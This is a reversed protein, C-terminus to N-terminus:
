VLFLLLQDMLESNCYDDRVDVILDTDSVTFGLDLMDIILEKIRDFL